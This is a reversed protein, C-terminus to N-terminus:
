RGEASRNLDLEPMLDHANPIQIFTDLDPRRSKAESGPSIVKLHARRLQSGFILRFSIRCIDRCRGEVSADLSETPEFPPQTFNQQQRGFFRGLFSGVRAEKQVHHYM